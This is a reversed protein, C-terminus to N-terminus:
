SGEAHKKVDALFERVTMRRHSSPIYSELFPTLDAALPEVYEGTATDLIMAPGVAVRGTDSMRRM